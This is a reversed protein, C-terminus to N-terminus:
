ILKAASAVLVAAGTVAGAAIKLTTSSTSKFTTISGTVVAATLSAAAIKGFIKHWNWRTSRVPAEEPPSYYLAATGANLALLAVGSTFGLWAHLTQLHKRQNAEKVGYIVYLSYLVASTGAGLAVQHALVVNKGKKRAAMLYAGAICCVTGLIAAKPHAAFATSNMKDNSRITQIVEYTALAQSLILVGDVIKFGAPAPTGPKVDAAAAAASM